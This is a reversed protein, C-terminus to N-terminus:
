ATWGAEVFCAPGCHDIEHLVHIDVADVEPFPVGRLGDDLIVFLLQSRIERASAPRPGRGHSELQASPWRAIRGSHDDAFIVSLLVEVPIQPKGIRRRAAIDGDGPNIDSRALDLSELHFTHMAKCRATVPHRSVPLSM